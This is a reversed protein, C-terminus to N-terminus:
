EINYWTQSYEERKCRPWLQQSLTTYYKAYRFYWVWVTGVFADHVVAKLKMPQVSPFHRFNPRFSGNMEVLNCHVESCLVTMWCGMWRGMLCGHICHPSKQLLENCSVKLIWGLLLQTEPTLCVPCHRCGPLRECMATHLPCCLHFEWIM